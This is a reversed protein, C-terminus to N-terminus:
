IIRPSTAALVVPRFYANNSHRAAHWRVALAGVALGLLAGVVSLLEGGFRGAFFASVVMILLPLMYSILTAIVLANEAIGIDVTDGPAFGRDSDECYYAKIM